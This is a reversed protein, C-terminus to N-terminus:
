LFRWHIDKKKNQNNIYPIRITEYELYNNSVYFSAEWSSRFKYTKNNITVVANWRTWRNTICPSFTGNKIKERLKDSAKKANIQIQIKGADTKFFKKLKRSNNKGQLKYFEKGKKTNNWKKKSIKFKKISEISHKYRRYNGEEVCPKCYL